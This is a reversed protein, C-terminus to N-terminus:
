DKVPYFGGQELPANLTQFIRDAITNPSPLADDAKLQLFRELYPFKEPAAGRIQAQMQTDMVGPDIVVSEIPHSQQKQEEAMCYVFRELAAKTSCYLAWGQYNKQAAGSSIAACVKRAPHTQFGQSFLGLSWVLSEFNLAISQSWDTPNGENLPGIDGLRAANHILHIEDWTKPSLSLVQSQFIEQATQAQGLDCAISFGHPASRSFEVVEWNKSSYTQCLASGLGKSGGLIIALKM